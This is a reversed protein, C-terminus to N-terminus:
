LYRRKVLLFFEAALDENENWAFTEAVNREIYSSAHEFSGASEVSSICTKYAEANGQFLENIFEFKKSISIAKVLEKIPTDKLKDAINVVPEKFKAIKGNVTAEDIDIEDQKISSQIPNVTNSKSEIPLSVEKEIIPTVVKVEEVTPIEVEKVEKKTTPINIVPAPKAEPIEIKAESKVIPIEKIPEEPLTVSETKIIKIEVPQKKVQTVNLLQAKEYITLAAQKVSDKFFSINEMSEADAITAGLAKNIEKLAEIIEKNDSM